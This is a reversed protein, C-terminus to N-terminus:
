TENRGRFNKILVGGSLSWGNDESYIPMAGPIIGLTEIVSYSLTCSGDENPVMQWSVISFIGLNEIRDRDEEVLTSDLPINVPHQIERRIIYEKTKRHGTVEIESVLNCVEGM